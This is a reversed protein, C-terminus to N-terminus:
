QSDCSDGEEPFYVSRDYDEMWWTRKDNEDYQAAEERSCAAFSFLMLAVMLALILKKM